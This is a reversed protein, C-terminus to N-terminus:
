SKLMKTVKYPLSLDGSAVHFVEVVGLMPKAPDSTNVRLACTLADFAFDSQASIRYNPIVCTITQDRITVAFGPSDMYMPMGPNTPPLRVHDLSPDFAKVSFGGAVRTDKNLVVWHPHWIKGDNDFNRDYNEDWLPTDDFDPHSTLALALIGETQDFGVIDTSLNTPFVYALVPAGDLQGLPTPTTHGARGEVKIQWITQQLRDDHIITADIIQFDSNKSANVQAHIPGLLGILLILLLYRM